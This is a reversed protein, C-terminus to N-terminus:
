WKRCSWYRAKHKPGPSDCNHRARFSKRRKPNSRKIKMDPDGFNVKVVNGKPNKVYVKFKKVDGRMPKNLKVKRGQYEAEDINEENDGIWGFNEYFEDGNLTVDDLGNFWSEEVGNYNDFFEADGHKKIFEERSLNEADDELAKKVAGEAVPEISELELDKFLQKAEDSNPDLKEGKNAGQEPEADKETKNVKGQDDVAQKILASIEDWKEPNIKGAGSKATGGQTGVKATQTGVKVPNGTVKSTTSTTGDQKEIDDITWGNSYRTGLWKEIEEPDAYIEFSKGQYKAKTVPKSKDINFNVTNGNSQIRRQHVIKEDLQESNNDISDLTIDPLDDKSLSNLANTSRSTNRGSTNGGSQSAQANKAMDKNGKFSTQGQDNTSYSGADGKIEKATETAEDKIIEAMREAHSKSTLARQMEDSNILDQLERKGRLANGAIIVQIDTGAEIMDVMKDFAEADGRYARNVTLIAEYAEKKDRLPIAEIELALMKLEHNINRIQGAQKWEAFSLDSLSDNRDTYFNGDDSDKWHKYQDLAVWRSGVKKHTGKYEGAGDDTYGDPQGQFDPDFDGSGYNYAPLGFGLDLLQKMQFGYQVKGTWIPRGDVAMPVYSITGNHFQIAQYMGKGRKIPERDWLIKFEESLQDQEEIAKSIDSKFSQSEDKFDEESDDKYPTNDASREIKMGRIASKISEIALTQETKSTPENNAMKSGIKGIMMAIEIQADTSPKIRQAIEGLLRAPSQKMESKFLELRVANDTLDKDKFAVNNAISYENGSPTPETWQIDKVHELANDISLREPEKKAETYLTDVTNILKRFDM